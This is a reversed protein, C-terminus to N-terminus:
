YKQAITKSQLFWFLYDPGGVKAGTGSLNYGGFAHTGSLAGTCKRNLYLNGVHFRRRAEDLKHPDRSYFSGTLGFESDNALELAHQWDRARTFALVPGFLEERFLRSDRPVESFITPQIFAGDCDEVQVREGGLVLKAQQKGEEIARLLREGQRMEIVPGVEFAEEGPGVRLQAAREVVKALVEDYVSDEVIARSCASCKQGAYGFAAQVIGTAAADLDADACVVTADKGGMEAMVRKLWIQGPQVRSAREYIRMGIEKSGTFAVMRVRPHDVLPDGMQDDEGTLFNVVGKPLGAQELIELLLWASLPAESAPKLVVTNGAAIAGLAMGLPIASPFNWPSIVAVVGIPEYIMTVHEDPMPEVPKPQAWKLAERAFIEFHDVSEAVEGDAETWNKGNELTMVANLEMRRARLLQGARKLITARQLPDSFRWTEYAEAAASVARELHERQAKPFRWVVEANQAPNTVAFTDTLEVREGGLILPFSRGLYTQRVYRFAERQREAVEPCSFDFYAEHTFPLLGAILSM